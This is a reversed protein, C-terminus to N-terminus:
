DIVGEAILEVLEEEHFGLVTRYVYENDAGLLPAPTRHREPRASLRYAPSDWHVIGLEPHEIPWFQERAVLQADHQVDDMGNVAYAPIGAAQLITAADAKNRTASWEDIAACIETDRAQRAELSFLGEDGDWPAGLVGALAQWDRADRVAVALWQDTGEAPFVGHPAMSEHANGLAPRQEGTATYRLVEADLGWICAELQSLDISTTRGTREREEIASLVAFSALHTAFWDTYAVGTGVPTRGPWATFHTFGVTSQLVLGFGRFKAHPGTSGEMSASMTIINPNVQRIEEVSLGVSDMFGPTFSDVVIDSEAILRLAVDRGKPHRLDLTIAKKDRNYNAWYASANPDDGRKPGSGRFTDLKRSSEVRIVEAGWLGLQQTANPAVGVWSFDAVRLGSLPLNNAPAPVQRAPADGAPQSSTLKVPPGPVVVPAELGPLEREQWYDRDKLQANGLLDAPTSVPCTMAGRRQGEEYIEMKPLSRFLAQVAGEFAATVESNPMGRGAQPLSALEVPDFGPDIGALVIWEYIPRMGDPTRSFSVHGDGSEYVLKSGTNGFARGGGARVTIMGELEYYLRANGLCNTVAAQLSVDIRQGPGGQRVIRLAVILGALAQLGAQAYGQEVSVRLPPMDKDGCLTLLGGAAMGILDTAQWNARPGDLGFPTVSVWVLKPNTARLREIDLGNAEFWGLPQSEFVVDAEAVAREVAQRGEITRIDAQLLERGQMMHLWYLSVQQGGAGTAFPPKAKLPDGEALEVRTVQAGYETLVRVGLTGLETTLDLVRLGKMWAFEAVTVGPTDCLFKSTAM